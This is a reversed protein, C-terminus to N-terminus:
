VSDDLMRFILREHLRPSVRKWGTTEPMRGSVHSGGSLRPEAIMQVNGNMVEGRSSTLNKTRYGSKGPSVRLYGSLIDQPSAQGGRHRRAETTLVDMFFTFLTFVTIEGDATEQGVGM